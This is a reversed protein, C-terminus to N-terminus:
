TDFHHNSEKQRNKSCSDATSRDASKSHGPFDASRM